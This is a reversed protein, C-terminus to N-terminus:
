LRKKNMAPFFQDEEVQNKLSRQAVEPTAPYEPYTPTFNPAVEVRVPVRIVKKERSSQLQGDKSVRFMECAM